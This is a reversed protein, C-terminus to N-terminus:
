FKKERNVQNSLERLMAMIFDKAEDLEPWEEIKFEEYLELSELHRSSEMLMRRMVQSNVFKKPIEIELDMIDTGNKTFCYEFNGRVREM